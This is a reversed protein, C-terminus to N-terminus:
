CTPRPIRILNCSSSSPMASKSLSGLSSPRDMVITREGLFFLLQCRFMRIFNFVLLAAALRKLSVPFPPMLLLRLWWEWMKVFFDAFRFRFNLLPAATEAASLTRTLFISARCHHTLTM